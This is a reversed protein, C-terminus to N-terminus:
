RLAGLFRDGFGPFLPFERVGVREWRDSRERLNDIKETDRPGGAGM